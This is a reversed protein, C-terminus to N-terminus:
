LQLFVQGVPRLETVASVAHIGVLLVAGAGDTLATSNGATLTGSPTRDFVPKLGALKELTTDKRVITDRAAGRFPIVLDNYFGDAYAQAAKM